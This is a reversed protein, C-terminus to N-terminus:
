WNPVFFLLGVRNSDGAASRSPPGIVLKSVECFCILSIKSDPLLSGSVKILSIAVASPDVIGRLQKCIGYVFQHPTCVVLVSADRAVEQAAASSTRTEMHYHSITCM